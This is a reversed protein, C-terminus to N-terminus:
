RDLNQQELLELLQAAQPDLHMGKAKMGRLIDRCMLWYKTEEAGQGAQRAVTARMKVLTEVM